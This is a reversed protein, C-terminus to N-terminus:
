YEWFSLRREAAWRRVVKMEQKDAPRNCKGRIQQIIFKDNVEVTLQKSISGYYDHDVTFIGCAGLKCLRAYSGVCHKMVKGEHLLRKSDLIQTIYWVDGQEDVEWKWSPIPLGSWTSIGNISKKLQLQNHWENTLEIVSNLTRGSLSFNKDSLVADYIFDMTDHITASTVEPYRAFFAIAKDWVHKNTHNIRQSWYSVMSNIVVDSAKHAKCKAWFLNGPITNTDPAKLFLGAEKASLYDKSSKRFSMGQGITIFWDLYVEELYDSIRNPKSLKGTNDRKIQFLQYMFKPVKYECLLWSVFDHIQRNLSFSKSVWDEPKRIWFDQVKNLIPLHPLLDTCEFKKPAKGAYQNNHWALIKKVKQATQLDLDVKRSLFKAM